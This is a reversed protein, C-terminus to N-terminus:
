FNYYKEFSEEARERFIDRSTNAYCCCCCYVISQIGKSMSFAHKQFKANSKFVSVCEPSVSVWNNLAECFYFWDYLLCESM